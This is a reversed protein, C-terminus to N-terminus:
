EEIYKNECEDCLGISNSDIFDKGCKECQEIRHDIIRINYEGIFDPYSDSEVYFIIGCGGVCENEEDFQVDLIATVSHCKPCEIHLTNCWDCNGTYASEYKSNPHTDFYENVIHEEHWSSLYNGYGDKGYCEDCKTLEDHIVRNRIKAKKLSRENLFQSFNLIKSSDIKEEPTEAIFENSKYLFQPLNYMWFEVKSKDFIEKILEERPSKIRKVKGDENYCWDEKIDNCIFLIPKKIESAYELIQKWIILDGFIQTGKKEKLDMYGPPISFEYRHKGEKTIDVIEEFTFDRGVSFYKEIAEFIDDNSALEKIENEAEEIQEIISMELIESEKKFTEVIARYKDINEQELHPYKDDKKTKNKLDSINDEISKISKRVSKLTIDKLPKCNEVIPKNIISARNKNYEFSVHFPIWLRGKLTKAFFNEIVRKRTQKPLFYFDLLASSDFVIVSNKWLSREREESM